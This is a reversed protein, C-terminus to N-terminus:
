LAVMREKFKRVHHPSIFVPKQLMDLYITGNELRIARLLNILTNKSVRFFFHAPLRAAFYGINKAIRIHGEHLGHRGTFDPALFIKSYNNEGEVLLVESLKPFLTIVTGADLREGTKRFSFAFRAHLSEPSPKKKAQM